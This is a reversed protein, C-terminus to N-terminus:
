DDGNKTETNSTDNDTMDSVSAIKEMDDDWDDEFESKRPSSDKEEPVDGMDSDASGTEQINIAKKREEPHKEYYKTLWDAPAFFGQGFNGKGYIQLYVGGKPNSRVRQGINSAFMMTSASPDLVGCGLRVALNARTEGPILSADPRQTAIVLHVGAARGLRAISGILMQAEGKLEDDAKGEDTNHTPVGMNGILFQHEPSDVAICYLKDDNDTKEIDDITFWEEEM